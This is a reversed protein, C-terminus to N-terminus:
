ATVASVEAEAASNLTQIQATLAALETAIVPWEAEIAALDARSPEVERIRKLKSPRVRDRM